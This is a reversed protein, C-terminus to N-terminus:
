GSLTKGTHCCNFVKEELFTTYVHSIYKLEDACLFYM